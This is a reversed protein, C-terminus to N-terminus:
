GDETWKLVIKNVQNINRKQSVWCSKIKTNQPIADTNNNERVRKNM